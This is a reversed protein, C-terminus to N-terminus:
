FRVTETLVFNEHCQGKLAFGPILIKVYLNVSYEWGMANPCGNKKGRLLVPNETWKRDWGGGWKTFFYKKEQSHFCRRKLTGTTM